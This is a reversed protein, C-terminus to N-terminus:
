FQFTLGVVPGGLDLGTGSDDDETLSGYGVLGTLRDSFAYNLGSEFEFTLKGGIEFGGAGALGGDHENRDSPPRPALGTGISAARDAISFDADDDALPDDDLPAARAPDPVSAEPAFQLRSTTAPLTRRTVPTPALGDLTRTSVTPTLGSALGSAVAPLTQVQYTDPWEQAPSTQCPLLWIAAITTLRLTQAM